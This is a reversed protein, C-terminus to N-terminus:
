QRNWQQATQEAQVQEVELVQYSRMFAAQARHLRQYTAASSIGLIVSLEEGNYGAVYRLYLLERVTPPLSALVDHVLARDAFTEVLAQQSCPLQDSGPQSLLWDLSVLCRLRRRRRDAYFINRAIRLLWPEFATEDILQRLQQSARIVTEQALDSAQEHDHTLYVLLRLVIPYAQSILIELSQRDGDRAATVVGADICPNRPNGMMGRHRHSM